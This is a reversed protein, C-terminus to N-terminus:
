SEGERELWQSVTEVDRIKAHMREKVYEAAAINYAVASAHDEDVEGSLWQIMHRFASARFRQLEEASNAKRWNDPGYKDAGKTMHVAWRTLFEIPLLTYDPKGDQRDRVMGSDYEQREGSDKVTFDMYKLVERPDTM